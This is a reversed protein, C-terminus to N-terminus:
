VNKLITIIQTLLYQTPDGPSFKFAFSWYRWDSGLNSAIVNRINPVNQYDMLVPESRVHMSSGVLRGFDEPAPIALDIVRGEFRGAPIVFFPILAYALGTSDKIAEPNYGLLKLDALLRNIGLNM